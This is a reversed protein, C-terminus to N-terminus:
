GEHCVIRLHRAAVALVVLRKSNRRLWAAQEKASALLM